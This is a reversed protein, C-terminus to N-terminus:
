ISLDMMTSQTDTKVPPVFLLNLRKGYTITRNRVVLITLVEDVFLFKNFPNKQIIMDNKIMKRLFGPENLNLWIHFFEM